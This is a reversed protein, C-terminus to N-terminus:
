WLRHISESKPSIPFDFYEDPYPEKLLSFHWWECDLPVFGSNEMIGRLIKRNCAEVFSIEQATYHSRSDMLDFNGGMPLLLGTHLDYLTLDVAGGRSHGSKRAVYGRELMNKKSINPYFRSKLLMDDPQEVWHLFTDVARQPRYGDWLLLGYGQEMAKKKAKGLALALAYSVVVRNTEYGKVPAGTFNDWTAYKADWRIDPLVEDVFVFGKEM